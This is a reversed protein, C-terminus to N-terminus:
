KKRNLRRNAEDIAEICDSWAKKAREEGKLPFQQFAVRKIFTVKASDLQLKGRTGSVNSTM